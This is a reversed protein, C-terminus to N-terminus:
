SEMTVDDSAPGITGGGGAAETNGDGTSQNGKRKELKDLWKKLAEGEIIELKQATRSEPSDTAADAGPGVISLSM